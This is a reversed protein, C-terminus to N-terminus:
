RILSCLLMWIGILIMCLILVGDSVVRWCIPALITSIITSEVSHKLPLNVRLVISYLQPQLFPFSFPSSSHFHCVHLNWLIMLLIMNFLVGHRPLFFVRWLYSLRFFYLLILDVLDRGRFNYLKLRFSKITRWYVTMNWYYSKLSSKFPPWMAKQLWHEKRMSRPSQRWNRYSKKWDQM